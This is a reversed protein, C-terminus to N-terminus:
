LIPQTSNRLNIVQQIKLINPMANNFPYFPISYTFILYYMKLRKFKAFTLKATPKSLPMTFYSSIVEVEYNLPCIPCHTKKGRVDTYMPKVYLLPSSM